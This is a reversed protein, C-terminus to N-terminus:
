LKCLEKIAEKLDEFTFDKYEIYEIRSAPPIDCLKVMNGKDDFVIPKGILLDTLSEELEETKKSM